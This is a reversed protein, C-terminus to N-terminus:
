ELNASPRATRLDETLHNKTNLKRDNFQGPMKQTLSNRHLSAMYWRPTGVELATLRM